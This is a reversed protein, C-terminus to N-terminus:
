FQLYIVDFHNYLWDIKKKLSLKSFKAYNKQGIVNIDVDIVLKDGLIGTSWIRNSYYSGERIIKFKKRLKTDGLLKNIIIDANRTLISKNDRLQIIYNIVENGSKDITSKKKYAEAYEKETKAEPYPNNDKCEVTYFTFTAKILKMNIEPYIM